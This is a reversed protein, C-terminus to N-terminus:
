VINLFLNKEYTKEYFQIQNTGKNFAVIPTWGTSGYYFCM